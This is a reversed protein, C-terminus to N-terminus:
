SSTAMFARGLFVCGLFFFFLFVSSGQGASAASMWSINHHDTTLMIIPEEVDNM